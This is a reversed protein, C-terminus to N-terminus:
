WPHDHGCLAERSWETRLVRGHGRREELIRHGTWLREAQPMTRHSVNRGKATQKLRAPPCIANDTTSVALPVEMTVDNSHLTGVKVRGETTAEFYMLEVESMLMQDPSVQHHCGLLTVGSLDIKQPGNVQIHQVPTDLTDIM